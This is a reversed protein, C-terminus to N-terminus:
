LTRRATQGEPVHRRLDKVLADVHHVKVGELAGVDVGQPQHVPLDGAPAVASTLRLRRRPPGPRPPSPSARPTVGTGARGLPGRPTGAARSRGPATRGTSRPSSSPPTHGSAEAWRGWNTASDRPVSISLISKFSDRMGTHRGNLTKVSSGAIQM